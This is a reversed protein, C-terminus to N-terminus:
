MFRHVSDWTRKRRVCLFNMQILAFLKQFSNKRRSWSCHFKKAQGAYKGCNCFIVDNNNEVIRNIQVSYYFEGNVPVVFKKVYAKTIEKNGM